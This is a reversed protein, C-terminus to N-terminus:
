ATCSHVCIITVMKASVESCVLGLSALSVELHALSTNHIYAEGFDSVEFYM